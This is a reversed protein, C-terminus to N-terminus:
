HVVLIHERNVRQIVYVFSKIETQKIIM